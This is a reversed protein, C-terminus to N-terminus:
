FVASNIGFVFNTKNFHNLRWTFEFKLPLMIHGIAFGLEMLPTKLEILPKVITNKNLLITKDSISSWAANFHTTLQLQLDEIFPINLGTFLEDLFNYEIGVMTVKDGFVEAFDLTRLTFKQGLSSINGPLAYMMQYPLADPSWVNKIVIQVNTSNFSNITSNLNLKFITFDRDTALISNNSIIAEGSLVAYSKGLSTRRRYYGDEIYKRFDLSFGTSITQVRLNYIPPNIEYKKDTNFFSFNTNVVASADRKQAYGLELNLVPLVAGGLKFEIGKSYYYDKFDYKGFLSTLTPVLSNYEDSESFLVTLEDAAKVYLLGTRYEGFRYEGSVSWKNKKDDFGYSIGASTNLRKNILNDAYVGFDIGNGEIRNFHYLGLPGTISINNNIYTKTGLFSFRDWFTKPISELSDIRKYAETEEMTNPITQIDAWYISNKQDADPKVTLVAMDFFDDSINRNIIYDYMITNIEFGFKALGLFNGEVFLRYDIPMYINEAFPLFQQLVNVRTFIGGPNAADNLNVDIKLLDYSKDSIFVRGYFGPDSKDDTEFYIKYVTQNDQALSDELFFYYYDLATESFPSVMNRGFFQLDDQYFNQIIRGGTLMNITPPFNASQKRAIIEEKYDAPKKFYGRSENELIGSIKLETTDNAGVDLSVSNDGSTIDSTTKIIGKTFAGFHYDSIKKDRERKAALAKRLIVLAPNIGPLVTVEELQLSIPSLIFNVIRKEHLSLELTDSKYGIYSAVIRYDGESLKLEYAGESNCSTGTNSNLLRINAFSLSKNTVRDSIKGSVSFTQSNLISTFAFIVMLLYKM